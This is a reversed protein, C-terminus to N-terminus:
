DCHCYWVSMSGIVRVDHCWDCESGGMIHGGDCYCYCYWDSMSAIM